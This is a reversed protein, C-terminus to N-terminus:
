IKLDNEVILIMESHQHNLVFLSFFTHITKAVQTIPEVVIM